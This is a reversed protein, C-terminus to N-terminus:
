QSSVPIKLEWPKHNDIKPNLVNFIQLLCAAAASEVDKVRDNNSVAM